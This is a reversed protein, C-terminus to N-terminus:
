RFVPQMGPEGGGWTGWFHCYSYCIRHCVRHSEDFFGDTAPDPNDPGNDACLDPDCKWRNDFNNADCDQLCKRTCRRWGEFDNDTAPDPDPTEGFAICARPALNCYYNGGCDRCRQDYYSCDNTGYLGLPDILQIPNNSVYVYVNPEYLWNNAGGLQKIPDPRTYRGTAAEYWRHLNYHLLRM